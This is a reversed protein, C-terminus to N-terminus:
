CLYLGKSALDADSWPDHNSPQLKFPKQRMVVAIAQLLPDLPIELLLLTSMVQSFRSEPVCAWVRVRAERLATGSPTRLPSLWVWSHVWETSKCDRRASAIIDTTGSSM